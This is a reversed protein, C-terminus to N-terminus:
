IIRSVHEVEKKEKNFLYGPIEKDNIKIVKGKNITLIKSDMRYKFRPTEGYLWKWQTFMEYLETLKVPNQNYIDVDRIVDKGYAIDKILGEVSLDPNVEKLNIVPSKVSKIARSSFNSHDFNLLQWLDNMNVDILLTYHHIRRKAKNYFASGSVKKNQYLLDNRDSVTLEVHYRRLYECIFEFNEHIKQNSGVFSINLNGRDHYVTGGGSIRRVIHVHNKEANEINIEQWPNQNRGIIISQENRYLFIFDDKLENFLYYEISQNIYPNTATSIVIKRKM